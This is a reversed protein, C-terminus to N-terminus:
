KSKLRKSEAKLAMVMDRILGRMTGGNPDLLDAGPLGRKTADKAILEATKSFSLHVDIGEEAHYIAMAIATATTAASM